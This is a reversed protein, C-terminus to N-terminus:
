DGIVVSSHTTLGSRRHAPMARRDITASMPGCADRRQRARAQPLCRCPRITPMFRREVWSMSSCTISRLLAACQGVWDALTSCELDVGERAYIGSQLYLPLHDAYKAVLVHALLGPGAMGRAIPRSVARAQVITDCRGCALKPRVHRIVKFSAPIYDLVESVDEGLSKLHGGCDPCCAPEPEHVVTERPLHDPLPKRVPQRGAEKPPVTAPTVTREARAAELEELSLELQGLMEDIKESRQGFQLRRLKAIVLKLHEIEADREALLSQQALIMAHLADTDRPLSAPSNM